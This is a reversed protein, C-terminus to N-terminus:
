ATALDALRQAVKEISPLSAASPLKTTGFSSV